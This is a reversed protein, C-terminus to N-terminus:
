KSREENKNPSQNECQVVYVLSPELVTEAGPLAIQNGMLDFATATKADVAFPLAVKRAGEVSWMAYITKDGSRFRYIRYSKPDESLGGDPAADGVLRAMFAVAAYSPKPLWDHTLLGFNSETYNRKRGDDHLDYQCVYEAGFQRALLYMRVMYRAQDQFTSAPYNGVAAHTANTGPEYTTWGVETIAIRTAGGHTKLYKRIGKGGDRFFFPAREPIPQHHDYPHITLIDHPRVLGYSMTKKLVDWWDTAGVGINLGERKMLEDDARCSFEAFKKMWRGDLRNSGYNYFKKYYEFFDFNHPENWIEYTDIRGKFHDAVFGVFRAFGEPDLPNDYITNKRMLVYNYCIGKKLGYDVAQEFSPLMKFEGRKRECQQWEPGDRLMGIGAAAAQDLMLMDPFKWWCHVCSGIWRKPKVQRSTLRAFRTEGLAVDKGESSKGVLAVRYAGFKGGLDEQSIVVTGSASNALPFSRVERDLWDYVRACEAKSSRNRVEYGVEITEDPFYVGGLRKPSVIVGTPVADAAFGLATLGLGGILLLVKKSMQIGETTKEKSM